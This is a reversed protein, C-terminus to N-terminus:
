QNRRICLLLQEVGLEGQITLSRVRDILNPGAARGLFSMEAAQIHLRM